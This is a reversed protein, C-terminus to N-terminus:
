GLADGVADALAEQAQPKINTIGKLKAWMMQAPNLGQSYPPLYLIRIGAKLLAMCARAAKHVSLSDMALVIGRPLYPILFKEAYQAFIAGFSGEFRFPAVTDLACKECISTWNSSELASTL